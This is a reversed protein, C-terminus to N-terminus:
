GLAPARVWVGAGPPVQALARVAGAGVGAGAGSGVGAGVGAGVRCGSRSGCRRRRGGPVLVPGLVTVQPTRCHIRARPPWAPSETVM